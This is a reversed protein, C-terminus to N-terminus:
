RLSDAFKNFIGDVQDTVPLSIYVDRTMVVRTGEM